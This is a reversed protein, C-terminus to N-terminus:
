EGLGVAELALGQDMFGQIRIVRGDRFEFLVAAM